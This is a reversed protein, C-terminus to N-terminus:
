YKTGSIYGFLRPVSRTSAIYVQQVNILRCMAGWEMRKTRNAGKGGGGCLKNSLCVGVTCKPYLKNIWKSMADLYFPNMWVVGNRDVKNRRREERLFVFVFSNM